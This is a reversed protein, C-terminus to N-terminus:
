FHRQGYRNGLHINFGVSLEAFHRLKNNDLQNGTYGSSASAYLGRLVFSTSNSLRWHWEMGARWSFHLNTKSDIPYVEQWQELDSSYGFCLLGGIGAFAWFQHRETPNYRTFLRNICVMPDAYATIMNFHYSAADPFYVQLEEPTSARQAHYGLMVRASFWRNFHKGFEADVHPSLMKFFSENRVYESMSYNAGASLGWFLNDNLKYVKSVPRNLKLTDKQTQANLTTGALCVFLLSLIYKM